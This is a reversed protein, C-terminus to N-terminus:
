HTLSRKTAVMKENIYIKTTKELTKILDDISQFTAKPCYVERDAVVVIANLNPRVVCDNGKSLM